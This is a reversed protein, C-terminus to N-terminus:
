NKLKKKLFDKVRTNIYKFCFKPDLIFEKIFFPIIDKQKKYTNATYEINKFIGVKANKDEDYYKKYKKYITKYGTVAKIFSGSIQEGKHIYHNFLYDDVGVAKYYQCFRICMEYDQRAPLNVDFMGVKDFCTKRMVLQTTTGIRDRLLEENFTVNKKFVQGYITKKPPNYNENITYGNSFVLGVNEKFCPIQKELKTPEWTDDDDLFAVFEGRSALIGNNRSIQAGENKSNKIYRINSYKDSFDKIDKSYQGFKPNDDIIIIELNKYTQDLVSRVAREVFFVQRKYTTIVVSVLGEM